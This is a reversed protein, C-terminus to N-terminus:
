NPIYLTWNEAADEVFRLSKDFYNTRSVLKTNEFLVLEWGTKGDTFILEYVFSHRNKDDSEYWVISCAYLIEENLPPCSASNKTSNIKKLFSTM